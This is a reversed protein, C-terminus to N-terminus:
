WIEETQKNIAWPPLSVLTVDDAYGPWRGSEVCQAYLDIARRNLRQGIRLTQSDLEVVTVLHPETTEQFVFVLAPEVLDPLLALVADRYWADQQHLQYEHVAREIADPAASRCSKYDPVILRTPRRHEDTTWHPLWDLLARRWVGTQEDRWILAQEAAGGHNGPGVDHGAHFLKSAFPHARLAEAMAHVRDWDAPKLPVAGRKRVDAVQDKIANTRWEDAPIRVLEPGVGLVLKHAAHGIDWVRKTPEAHDAWWRFLAPCSPPLLKRAGTSSLSGGVVPDAHYEEAPLDYIGPRDTTATVM